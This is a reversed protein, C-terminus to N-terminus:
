AILYPIFFETVLRNIIYERIRNLEDNDHIIHKGRSREPCAGYNHQWVHIRFTNRLINIQKTVASKYGRIIAPISNSTPKCFQEFNTKLHNTSKYNIHPYETSARHMTSRRPEVMDNQLIRDVCKDNIIIIGHIHNPM